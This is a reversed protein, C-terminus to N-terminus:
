SLGQRRKTKGAAKEEAEREAAQLAARTEDATDRVSAYRANKSAWDVMDEFDEKFAERLPKIVSMQEILAEATVKKDPSTWAIGVAESVAAEIEAGVFGRCADVVKAMNKLKPEQGRKRLHIQIIEERGKAGPPAFYWVEDFRGKRLLEPPLGRTRNASAITYIDSENIQLFTLIMGLVGQMIGSDGAAQHSGGLSKDMEDLMVVCPAMAKLMQLANRINGETEGVIGGKARSVYFMILPWGLADAVAQGGLSKATGPPGIVVTGKPRDVGFKRAAPTFYTTRRKIYDKFHQLDGIDDFSVPKALELVNSRKVAETKFRLVVKNLEAVPVTGDKRWAEIHEAIAVGFASSAEVATLGTASTVLLDMEEATYPTREQGPPYSSAIVGELEELLETRSPLEFDVIPIDVQLEIPLTMTHPIMIYLRQWNFSFEQIYKQVCRIALQNRMGLSPYLDLMVFIGKEWGSHTGGTAGTSQTKIHTLAQVPDQIANIDSVVDSGPNAYHKWGDRIDWERYPLRNQGPVHASWKRIAVAARHPERTRVFVVGVSARILTDLVKTFQAVQTVPQAEPETSKTRM